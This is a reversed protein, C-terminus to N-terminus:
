WKWNPHKKAVNSNSDAAIYKRIMIIDRINVNGDGNVDARTKQISTLNWKTSNSLYKRIKIIDRINIAENGDVDGKNNPVKVRIYTTKSSSGSTVTVNVQVSSTTISKGTIKLNNGTVEVSVKAQDTSNCTIHFDNLDSPSYELTLSKTGEVSIEKEKVSTSGLKIDIDAIQNRNIILKTGDVINKGGGSLAVSKEGSIGDNRNIKLKVIKTNSSDKVFANSINKQKESPIWSGINHILQNRYDDYYKYNYNLACEFIETYPIETQTTTVNVTITQNQLNLWNSAPENKNEEKLYDLNSLAEIGPNNSDGKVFKIQNRSANFCRLSKIKGIGRIDSIKNNSIDLYTLNKFGVNLINDIKTIDTNAVGLNTLFKFKEKETSTKSLEILNNSGFNKNGNLYLLKLYNCSSNIIPNLTSIKTYNLNLSSLRDLPLAMIKEYDTKNRYSTSNDIITITDNNVVGTLDIGSLDIERLNSTELKSVKITQKSDDFIAGENMTQKLKQYAQASALKITNYEIGTTSVSLIGHMEGQIAYDDYSIYFFGNDSWDEGYSNAAIWAGKHVPPTKTREEDAGGYDHVYKNFKSTELNDDWGIITIAHWGVESKDVTGDDYHYTINNNYANEQYFPKVTSFKENCRISAYLGGNNIIHQKIINVVQSESDVSIEVDNNYYKITNGERYKKIDPFDIVDNVYWKTNENQKLNLWKQKDSDRYVTTDYPCSSNNVPGNDRIFYNIADEWNGGDGLTRSNSPYINKYKTSTLFDLHRESLDPTNAKGYSKGYPYWSTNGYKLAIHTRLAGLSGFAWCTGVGDGANQQEIKVNIVSNLSFYSDSASATAFNSKINQNSDSININKYRQLFEDLEVKSEGNPYTAEKEEAYVYGNLILGLALFILIIIAVKKLKNIM